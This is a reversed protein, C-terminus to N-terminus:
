LIAGTGKSTLREVIDQQNEDSYLVVGCLIHAYDAVKMLDVPNRTEKFRYAYKQISVLAFDEVTGQAIALDLPEISGRKYHKSGQTENCFRRGLDRAEYVNIM